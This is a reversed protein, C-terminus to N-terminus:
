REWTWQTYLIKWHVQHCVEWVEQIWQSKGQSLNSQQTVKIICYDNSGQETACAVPKEWQLGFIITWYHNIQVGVGSYSLFSTVNKYQHLLPQELTVFVRFIYKAM